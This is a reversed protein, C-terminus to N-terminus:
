GVGESAVGEIDLATRDDGATDVGADGFRAVDNGATEAAARGPARIEPRRVPTMERVSM